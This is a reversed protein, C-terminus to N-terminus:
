TSYLLQTFSLSIEKPDIPATKERTRFAQVLVDRYYGDVTDPQPLQGSFRQPGKVKLESQVIKKMADDQTVWPGMMVWGGAMNFGIEIKLRAAEKVAHRFLERWEPGLFKVGPLPHDGAYGGTCILNVGGIGKAKFEELDRTIGKKDIRNFLWWWYVSPKASAPPNAFGQELDDKASATAASLSFAALAAALLCSLRFPTNRLFM